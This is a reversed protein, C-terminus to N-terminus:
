AVSRQEDPWFDPDRDREHEAEINERERDLRDLERAVEPDYLFHGWVRDM